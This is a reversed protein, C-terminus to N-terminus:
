EQGAGGGAQGADSLAGVAHEVDDLGALHLADLAVAATDARSASTGPYTIERPQIFNLGTEKNSPEPDTTYDSRQSVRLLATNTVVAIAALANSGAVDGLLTFRAGLCLHTPPNLHLFAKNTLPSYVVVCIVLM